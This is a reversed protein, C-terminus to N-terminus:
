RDLAPIESIPSSVVTCHFLLGSVPPLVLIDPAWLSSEHKVKIVANLYTLKALDDWQVSRPNPNTPTALLGHQALEAAVKAEV